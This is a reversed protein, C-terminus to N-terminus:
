KIWGHYAPERTAQNMLDSGAVNAINGPAVGERLARMTEYLARVAAM